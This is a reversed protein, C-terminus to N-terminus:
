SVDIPTEESTKSLFENVADMYLEMHQIHSKFLLPYKNVFDILTSTPNTIKFFEKVDSSYISKSQSFVKAVCAYVSELGTSNSFLNRKEYLYKFTQRGDIYALMDQVLDVLEKNSVIYEELKELPILKLPDVKELDKTSFVVLSLIPLRYVIFDFVRRTCSEGYFITYEKYANDLDITRQKSKSCMGSVRCVRFNSRFERVTIKKEQKEQEQKEKNKKEQKEVKIKELKVDRFADEIYETAGAIEAIEDYEKDTLRNQFVVYIKEQTKYVKSRAITLIKKTEPLLDPTTYKNDKAVVVLHGVSKSKYIKVSDWINYSICSTFKSGHRIQLVYCKKTEHLYINVSDTNMSFCYNKDERPIFNALIGLSKYVEKHTHWPSKEYLNEIHKTLKNVAFKVQHAEYKANSFTERNAAIGMKSPDCDVVLVIKNGRCFGITPYEEKQAKFPIGGANLYIGPEIPKVGFRTDEEYKLLKVNDLDLICVPYNLQDLHEVVPKTKWFCTARTYAKIVNGIDEQKIPIKILIGNEQDTASERFLLLRGEKNEGIDAIYERHTGEYFSEVIFSDSVAWGSKAGIGFYGLQSNNHRKTSIGYRVFVDKITEDSMGIGYDRIIFEPKINSPLRVRISSADKGAETCADRANSLYEQVMTRLPHSYIKKRIIDIIVSSDGISFPISEGVVNSYLLSSEQPAIYM